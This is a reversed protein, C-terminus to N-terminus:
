RPDSRAPHLSVTIPLQFWSRGIPRLSLNIGVRGDATKTLRRTIGTVVIPTTKRGSRPASVAQAVGAGFYIPARGNQSSEWTLAGTVLGLLGPSDTVSGVSLTTRHIEGLPFLSGDVRIAVSSGAPLWQRIAGGITPGIPFLTFHWGGRGLDQMADPQLAGGLSLEVTTATAQASAASWPTRAILFFFGIIVLSRSLMGTNRWERLM